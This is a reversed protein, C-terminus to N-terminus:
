LFATCFFQLRGEPASFCAECSMLAVGKRDWDRARPNEVRVGGFIRSQIFARAIRDHAAPM